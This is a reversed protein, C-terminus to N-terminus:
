FLSGSARPFVEVIDTKIKLGGAQSNNHIELYICSSGGMAILTGGSNSIPEAKALPLDTKSGDPVPEAWSPPLEQHSRM